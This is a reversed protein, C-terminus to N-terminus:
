LFTLIQGISVPQKKTPTAKKAIKKIKLFIKEGLPTPVVKCILSYATNKINIEQAGEQQETSVTADLGSSTKSQILISSYVSYSINKSEKEIKEKKFTLVVRDQKPELTAFDYQEKQLLHLIDSLKAINIDFLVQKPAEPIPQQIITEQSSAEIEEDNDQSIDSDEEQVKPKSIVTKDNTLAPSPATTETSIDALPDNRTPEPIPTKKTDPELPQESDNVNLDLKSPDFM